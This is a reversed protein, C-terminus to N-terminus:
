KEAAYFCTINNARLKDCFSRARYENKFPGAKLKYLFGHDNSQSSNIKYSIDRFLSSHNQKLKNWRTIANKKISYAGIQIYHISSIKTKPAPYVNLKRSTIEIEPLLENLEEEAIENEASLRYSTDPLNTYPDAKPPATNKKYNIEEQAVFDYIMDDDEKFDDNDPYIKIQEPEAKIIPLDQKSIEKKTEINALNLFKYTFFITLLLLPISAYALAKKFSDM